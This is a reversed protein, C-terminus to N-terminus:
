TPRHEDAWLVCSVVQCRRCRQTGSGCRALQRRKRCQAKRGEHLRHRYGISLCVLRSGSFPERIHDVVVGSVGQHKGHGHGNGCVCCPCALTVTMPPRPAPRAPDVGGLLGFPWPGARCRGTAATSVEGSVAPSMGLVQVWRSVSAVRCGISGASSSSVGVCTAWSNPTFGFVTVRHAFEPRRPNMRVGPPWRLNRRDSIVASSV